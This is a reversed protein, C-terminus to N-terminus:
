KKLAEIKRAIKNSRPTGVKRFFSIVQHRYKGTEAEAVAKPLAEQLWRFHEKRPSSFNIRVYSTPKVEGLGDSAYVVCKQKLLTIVLEQSSAKIRSTDVAAFYGFDPEVLFSLYPTDTVIAQLLRFNSRLKKGCRNLYSEDKLAVLAARQAPLATNIRTLASKVGLIAQIMLPHGAVFGLRVGAMGYGHSMGSVTVINKWGCLESLPHHDAGPNIRHSAHTINHILVIDHQRALRAIAMLRAREHVTGTPNVPDCLIIMRTRSTISRALVTPDLRYRDTLRVRKVTGGALVVPPELFFYGPDTVIVEQGQEVFAMICYALAAQVGETAILEFKRGCEKRFIRAAATQKLEPLINPPYSRIDQDSLGQRFCRAVGLSAGLHFNLPGFDAWKDPNLDLRGEELIDRHDWGLIRVAARYHFFNGVLQHNHFLKRTRAAFYRGCDSDPLRSNAGDSLFSYILNKEKM